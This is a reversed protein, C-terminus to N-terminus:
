RGSSGSWPGIRGPRRGISPPATRPRATSAGSPVSSFDGGGEAPEGHLWRHDRARRFAVLVRGDALTAASPFSAYFRRDSYVVRHSLIDLMDRFLRGQVRRMPPMACEGTPAIFSEKVSRTNGQYDREM